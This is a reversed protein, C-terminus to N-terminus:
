CTKFTGVNNNVTIVVGALFCPPFSEHGQVQCHNWPESGLLVPLWFVVALHSSMLHFLKWVAVSVILLTFLGGISHSCLNAFYTDSWPKMELIQRRKSVKVDPVQQLNLLNISSLHEWFPGPASSAPVLCPERPLDRPHPLLVPGLFIGLCIAPEPWPGYTSFKLRIEDPSSQSALWAKPNPCPLHPNGAIAGTLWQNLAAGWLPCAMFESASHSELGILFAPEKLWLWGEKSSQAPSNYLYVSAPSAQSRPSTEATAVTSLRSKANLKEHWNNWM